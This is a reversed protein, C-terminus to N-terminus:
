VFAPGPEAGSARFVPPAQVRIGPPDLRDILQEWLFEEDEGFVVDATGTGLHWAGRALEADLQGAAWASIGVYLRMGGTAPQSAIRADIVERATSYAIDDTVREIGTGPAPNRMLLLMTQPAVPGGLLVPHGAPAGGKLDPLLDQHRFRTRRNLIVGLTGDADHRLILVVSRSFFRSALDRRAVLLMGAAPVVTAAPARPSVGADAVLPSLPIAAALLLALM